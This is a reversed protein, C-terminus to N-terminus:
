KEFNQMWPEVVAVGLLGNFPRKRQLAQRLAQDLKMASAKWTWRSALASSRRAFEHLRNRQEWIQCLAAFLGEETADKAWFASDEETLVDTHCVVRTALIALGSALYEFLKIPSSVRFEDRDPFPLVGVHAQALLRPIQEHPVRGIVRIHEETRGSFRELSKRETGDGVLTLRFNMASLNAKQVASCLQMLQRERALVGVYILHVPDGPEPWRRKERYEWFSEPRAGSPWVGLLRDCPMRMLEAMRLTISTQGDVMSNALNNMASFFIRSIHDRPTALHKPVMPATRTDMVLLPKQRGFMRRLLILPALWPLSMQHFLIVDTDSWQRAIFRMLRLHFLAHRVMYVEPRRIGHIALRLANHRSYDGATILKIDWGLQILEFSTELWTAADLAKELNGTYIWLM